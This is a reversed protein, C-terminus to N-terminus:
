ATQVNNRRTLLVEGILTYDGIELILVPQKGSKSAEEFIKQLMDKTVTIQKGGPRTTKLEFLCDKSKLDGKDQWMAGSNLTRRVREEQKMSIERNSKEEKLYKPVAM